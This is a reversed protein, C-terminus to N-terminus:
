ATANEVQRFPSDNEASLLSRIHSVIRHEGRPKGRFGNRLILEEMKTRQVDPTSSPGNLKNMAHRILNDM